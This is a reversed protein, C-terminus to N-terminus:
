VRADPPQCQASGGSPFPVAPLTRSASTRTSLDLGCATGPAQRIVDRTEGMAVIQDPVGVCHHGSRPAGDAYCGGGHCAPRLAPVHLVLRHLRDGARWERGSAAMLHRPRLPSPVPHNTRIRPIRVFLPSVCRWTACAHGRSFSIATM